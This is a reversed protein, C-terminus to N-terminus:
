GRARWELWRGLHWRRHGQGFRGYRLRIGLGDPGRLLFDPICFWGCSATGATRTTENQAERGALSIRFPITLRIHRRADLLTRTWLNWRPARERVSPDIV